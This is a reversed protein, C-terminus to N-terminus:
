SKECIEVLHWFNSRLGLASLCTSCGPLDWTEKMLHTPCRWRSHAGLAWCTPLTHACGTPDLGKRSSQSARVNEGPGGFGLQDVPGGRKKRLEGSKAPSTEPAQATPLNVSLSRKAGTQVWFLGYGTDLSSSAGSPPPNYPPCIPYLIGLTVPTRPVTERWSGSLWPYCRYSGVGM